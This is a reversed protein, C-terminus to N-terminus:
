TINIENKDTNYIPPYFGTLHKYHIEQITFIKSIEKYRKVPYIKNLRTKCQICIGIVMISKENIFKINALSEWSTRPEKCKFCYFENSKCSKKRKGQRKNIFTKLNAGLVLYPKREDIKPLGQTYWEQVTRKHLNFLIVIDQTSYSLREKILRTNYKRKKKIM